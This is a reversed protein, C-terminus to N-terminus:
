KDVQDDGSRVAADRAKLAALFLLMLGVLLLVHPLKGDYFGGLTVILWTSLLVLAVKFLMIGGTSLDGLPASHPTGIQERRPALSSFSIRSPHSSATFQQCAIRRTRSVMLIAARGDLRRGRTLRLM